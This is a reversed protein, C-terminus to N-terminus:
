KPKSIGLLKRHIFGVRGDLLKVKAWMGDESIGLM